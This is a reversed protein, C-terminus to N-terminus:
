RESDGIVLLDLAGTTNRVVLGVGDLAPDSM